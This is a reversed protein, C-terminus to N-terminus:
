KENTLLNPRKYINGIIEFHCGAEYNIFDWEYWRAHHGMHVPEPYHAVLHPNDPNWEVVSL